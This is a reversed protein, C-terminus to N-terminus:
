WAWSYTKKGDQTGNKAMGAAPKPKATELSAIVREYAQDPTIGPNERVLKALQTKAKNRLEANVKATDESLDGLLSTSKTPYLDDIMSEVAKSVGASQKGSFEAQKRTEENIGKRINLQTQFKKLSDDTEVGNLEGTDIRRKLESMAQIAEPKSARLDSIGKLGMVMKQVEQPTFWRMQGGQAVPTRQNTLGTQYPQPNLEAMLQERQAPTAKQMAQEIQARRAPSAEPQVQVEFGILNDTPHKIMKVIQSNKAVYQGDNTVPMGRTVNVTEGFSRNLAGLVEPQNFVEVDGGNKAAAQVTQFILEADREHEPNTAAGLLPYIRRVDEPSGEGRDLREWAQSALQRQDEKRQAQDVELKKGQNDLQRGQNSLDQGQVGLRASEAVYPLKAAEGQNALGKGQNDLKQGEVQQAASQGVYPLKAKTTANDLQQGEVQAAASPAVFPMKAQTAQNQLTQGTNQLQQGQVQAEASQGVYPLKAQLAQNELGQSENGLEQGRVSLEASRGVYPYKARLVDTELDRQTDQSLASREQRVAQQRKLEEELALTRDQRRSQEAERQLLGRRAFQSGMADFGQIFGTGFGALGFGSM